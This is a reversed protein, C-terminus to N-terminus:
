EAEERLSTLPKKAPGEVVEGTYSFRSGHCPCDWTRDGDNWYTECGMHTCTTDVLHLTGDAERYAGARKGRVRVVAGEGAAVDGPHRHVLELKGAILHKAVDANEKVFTKIDPDAHLRSPDFLEQYPDKEGLIRNTLLIAAATGNTMGWKRYGTAVWIRDSAGNIRGIYPLKDLTVLDQTSWRYAIEKVPYLSEAFDRLAEYHEFTCASQGAKHGDGGILVLPEQEDHVVRISRSPQDVGLYMGGEYKRGIRVGLVYSREAHLRAFYFGKWDAFPFHSASVVHRCRVRHGRDTLVVPEDGDEVKMVTTEEFLQSGSAVIRDILAMLYPLPHFRAQREMALAAKVELPLAIRDSLAGPIDLKRYAELERELKTAGADSQAYLYATEDALDCSVNLESVTKRVFALADRNAEYYQRAKDEGFHQILEDYILDHQATIKATTHGTTGNLVRGAELVIVRKGAKSLLYAVTIGTIGGGVVVVDAEDDAGLKPFDTEPVSAIWYSAPFEPLQKM